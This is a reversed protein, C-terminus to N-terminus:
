ILSLIEKQMCGQLVQLRHASILIFGFLDFSTNLVTYNLDVTPM